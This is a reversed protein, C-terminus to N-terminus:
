GKEEKKKAVANYTRQNVFVDNIYKRATQEPDHEKVLNSRSTHFPTQTGDKTPNNM